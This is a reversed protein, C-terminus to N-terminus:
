RWPSNQNFSTSVCSNMARVSIGRQKLFGPYVANIECSFDSGGILVALRSKELMNMKNIKGYKEAYITLAIIVAWAPWGKREGDFVTFSLSKDYYQEATSWWLEAREDPDYLPEEPLGETSMFYKFWNKYTDFAVSPPKKLIGDLLFFRGKNRANPHAGNIKRRKKM